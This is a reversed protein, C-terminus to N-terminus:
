MQCLIMNKMITSILQISMLLFAMMKVHKPIPSLLPPFLVPLPSDPSLDTGGSKSHFNHGTQENLHSRQHQNHSFTVTHQRRKLTPALQNLRNQTTYHRKQESKTVV